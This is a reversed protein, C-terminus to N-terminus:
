KNLIREIIDICCSVFRPSVAAPDIPPYEEYSNPKEDAEPLEYFFVKEVNVEETPDQGMYLMDFGMNFGVNLVRDQLHYASFGGGDEVSSRILNYKKFAGTLTGVTAKRGDYKKIVKGSGIDDESLRCVQAALQALPQIIEYDSLQETWAELESEELDIPHVLSIEANDPLEFIDDNMDCLTGDDAYRFTASLKGESYVGWILGGAFRHMIPNDAFLENWADKKWTRGNRLVAELRMKQSAAVSKLQKKIDSLEQKAAEAKNEDDESNPKPLSKIVKGKADDTISVTLDPMLTLTFTRTGFDLIRQGNKGFGLDPVIKDELVATPVGMKDAAFAFASKAAKKVMNNPFKVSCDSVFLLATSKGNLAIANVAFGALAGRSAEAWETLQKKMATIQVDSGLICYPLLLMKKKTDAGDDLWKRYIDELSRHLDPAYLKEALKSCENLRDPESLSMYESLIYKMISIDAKESLDAYRIESYLEEPIFAISRQKTKDSNERAFEAAAENTEFSFDAGYKRENDWKKIIEAAKKGGDGKLKPAAKELEARFVAENASIIAGAAKIATKSKSSLLMVPIGADTCGAKKYLIDLWLAAGKPDNKINEFFKLADDPKKVALAAAMTELHPSTNYYELNCVPAYFIMDCTIGMDLLKDVAAETSIGTESCVDGYCALLESYRRLHNDNLHYKCALMFVTVIDDALASYPALKMFTRVVPGVKCCSLDVNTFTLVHIAKQMDDCILQVLKSSGCKNGRYPDSTLTFSYEIISLIAPYLKEFEAIINPFFPKDKYRLAFRFLASAPEASIMYESAYKVSITIYKEPDADIESIYKTKDNVSICNMAVCCVLLDHRGIKEMVTEVDCFGRSAYNKLTFVRTISNIYKSLIEAFLEDKDYVVLFLSIAEGETCINNYQLFLEKMAPSPSSRYLKAALLMTLMLSINSDPSSALRRSVYEPTILAEAEDKYQEYISYALILNQEGYSGSYLRADLLESLTIGIRRCIVVDSNYYSATLLYNRLAAIAKLCRKAYECGTGDLEKVLVDPFSINYNGKSGAESVAPLMSDDGNLYADAEPPFPRTNRLFYFKGTIIEKTVEYMQAETM